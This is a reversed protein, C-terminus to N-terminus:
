HHSTSRYVRAIIKAEPVQSFALKPVVSRAALRADTPSCVPSPAPDASTRRGHRISLDSLADALLM